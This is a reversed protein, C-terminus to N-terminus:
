RTYPQLPANCAANSGGPPNGVNYKMQGFPLMPGPIGGPLSISDYGVVPAVGGMPGQPAQTTRSAANAFNIFFPLVNPGCPKVYSLIPNLQGFFKLGHPVMDQVDGAFEPVRQLTPPLKTLTEDLAPLLGRLDASTGPLQHLADNLPGSSKNLNDAVPQLAGGLRSLDGSAAQATSLTPPLKSIVAKLDDSSGATVKTVTDADSVLDAIQGQRTDLSNLVKATNSSLQRLAMEQRSLATLAAPVYRTPEGLSGFTQSIGSQNGQTVKDLSQLTGSLNQRDSQPLARVLEDTDVPPSVSGTPIVAQDPLPPGNGDTIDVYTENILTKTKIAAHVGQHLPAFEPHDGLGARVQAVGNAIELSLVRGVPVGNLTVQSQNVLNKNIPSQFTIQYPTPAVLPLKGGAAIYFIAYFVLSVVVFVILIALRIVPMAKQSIKM